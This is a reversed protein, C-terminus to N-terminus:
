VNHADLIIQIYPWYPFLFIVGTHISKLAGKQYCIKRLHIWHIERHSFLIVIDLDWTTVRTFRDALIPLNGFLFKGSKVNQFKLHTHNLVTFMELSNLHWPRRFTHPIYHDSSYFIVLVNNLTSARRVTMESTLDGWWCPWGLETGFHIGRHLNDGKLVIVEGNHYGKDLGMPSRILPKAFNFFNRFDWFFQTSSLGVWGGGMCVKKHPFWWTCPCFVWIM